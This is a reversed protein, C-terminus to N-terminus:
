GTTPGAQLVPKFVEKQCGSIPPYTATATSLHSPDQYTQVELTSPPREGTCVTPNDILPQAAISAATPEAICDTSASLPCGTPEGPSGKPFRELDHSADAPFGWFTLDASALPTLQSIDRVTFRLGYDGATRVNVPITIPIDLTPVVFSFRATEGTQPM